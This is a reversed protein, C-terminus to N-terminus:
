EVRMFDLDHFDYSFDTMPSFAKMKIGSPKGDQDLSFMVFADADFSRDYWKVVFANGKYYFMEGALKPSRISNFLLKGNESKITINGFWKDHYTGTYIQLNAASIKAKSEEVTKWVNEVIKEAEANSNKIREANEKVRDIGKVGLYSDQITNTISNFAAGSKQNTLVIIGLQLEPILTVQTVIGTL